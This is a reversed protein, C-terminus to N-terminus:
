AIRARLATIFDATIFRSNTQSNDLLGAARTLDADIATLVESVTNRALNETSVVFDVAPVSVGNPDLYDPTYYQFLEFHGFARLAYAQGLIHNAATEQGAVDVGPFAQIVRSAYNIMRYRTIWITQAIGTNPNMVFTHLPLQQGGNDIGVKTNDTFISNLTITSNNYQAYTANLGNQLDEVSQFATEPLLSDNPLIDLQEDCSIFLTSSALALGLFIKKIAKM